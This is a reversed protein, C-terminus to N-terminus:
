KSPYKGQLLPNIIDALEDLAEQAPKDNTWILDLGAGLNTDIAAWNRLSYSPSPVAYELTYDMVAEKYEPPHAENDTWSKIYEPDTYYKLELPMWLGQKFLDVQEPDNHFLYFQMAEKPYKTDAFIITPSGLILTTPEKLKPLVGLGFNMKSEAFDLMQWQGDIAMAVTKTQLRVSTAPMNQQQTANPAVHYKYMLDQINQFAEVSEPQNLIFETGDENTIDGGNSRVFTYWGAWWTPISVGYQKINQPNFDTHLANNGNQDLTLQQAVNLFEEWTWAEAGTTPPPSIDMEEFIDKNYFLNISEAATNTGITKGEDFYYYTQPLREALGHHIEMYPTLDMVKGEEAWKLAFGEDLYAVDPLEDTAMLTNIKTEFDGTVHQADIKINPYTEEFSRVMKDVAQKEFASGWFMFQLTVPDKVAKSDTSNNGNSTSPSTNNSNSSNSNSSCATIALALMFILLMVVWKNRTM